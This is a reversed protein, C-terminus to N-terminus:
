LEEMSQQRCSCMSKKEIGEILVVRSDELLHGIAEGNGNPVCRLCKCGEVRVMMRMMPCFMEHM